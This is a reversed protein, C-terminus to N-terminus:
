VTFTFSIDCFLSSWICYNYFWFWFQYLSSNLFKIKKKFFLQQVAVYIWEAFVFKNWLNLILLGLNMEFSILDKKALHNQLFTLLSTKLVLLSFKVTVMISMTGLSTIASKLISLEQISFQIKLWILQVPTIVYYHFKLCTLVLIM